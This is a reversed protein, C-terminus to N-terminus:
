LGENCVNSHEDTKEGVDRPPKTAVENFGHLAGGSMNNVPRASAINSSHHPKFLDVSLM